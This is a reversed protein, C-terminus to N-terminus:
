EKAETEEDYLIIWEDESKISMESMFDSEGVEKVIQM